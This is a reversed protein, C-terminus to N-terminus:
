WNIPDKGRAILMNNIKSFPKSGFFGRYASLPSPHPAVLFHDSSVSKCDKLSLVKQQASSGWLLFIPPDKQMCLKRVIADTFQEWGRGQHSM